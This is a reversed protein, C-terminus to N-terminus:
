QPKHHWTGDSIQTVQPKPPMIGFTWVPDLATNCYICYSSWIGPCLNSRMAIVLNDWLSLKWMAAMKALALQNMLQEVLRADREQNGGWGLM